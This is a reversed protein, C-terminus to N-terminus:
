ANNNAVDLDEEAGKDNEEDIDVVIPDSFLKGRNEEVQNNDGLFNTIEELPIPDLHVKEALISESVDCVNFKSLDMQTGKSSMSSRGEEAM